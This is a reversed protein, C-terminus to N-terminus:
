PGQRKKRADKCINQLVECFESSLETTTQGGCNNDIVLRHNSGGGILLAFTYLAEDIDKIQNPHKKVTTVQLLAKM